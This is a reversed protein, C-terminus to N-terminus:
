FINVIEGELTSVVMFGTFDKHSGMYSFADSQANNDSDKGLVTVVM